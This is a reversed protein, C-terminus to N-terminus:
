ERENDGYCYLECQVDKNIKEYFGKVFEKKIEFGYCRSNLMNPALLTSGGGACSDLVVDNM